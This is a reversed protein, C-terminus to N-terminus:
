DRPQHAQREGLVVWVVALLVVLAVACILVGGLVLAILIM